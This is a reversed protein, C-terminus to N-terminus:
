YSSIELRASIHQRLFCEVKDLLPISNRDKLFVRIMCDSVEFEISRGNDLDISKVSWMRRSIRESIGFLRITADGKTLFRLLGELKDVQKQFSIELQSGNYKLFRNGPVTEWGIVYNTLLNEYKEKLAIYLINTMELFSSLRCADVQVIGNSHFLMTGQAGNIMHGAILNVNFFSGCRESNEFYADHAPNGKITGRMTVPESFMSPLQEFNYDIVTIRELNHAIESLICSSIFCPQLSSALSLTQNLKSCVKSEGFYYVIVLFDDRLDMVAQVTKMGKPNKQILTAFSADEDLVFDIGLEASFEMLLLNYRDWDDLEWYEDRLSKFFFQLFHDNGGPQFFSFDEDVSYDLGIL